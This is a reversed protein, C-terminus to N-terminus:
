DCNAEVTKYELLGETSMWDYLAQESLGDVLTPDDSAVFGLLKEASLTQYHTM